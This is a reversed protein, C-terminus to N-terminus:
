RKTQNFDTTIPNRNHSIKRTRIVLVKQQYVEENLIQLPSTRLQFEFGQILISVQAWLTSAIVLDFSSTTQTQSHWVFERLDLNHHSLLDPIQYVM